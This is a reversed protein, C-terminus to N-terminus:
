PNEGRTWNDYFLAADIGREATVDKFFFHPAESALSQRISCGRLWGDTSLNEETPCAIRFQLTLIIEGPPPPPPLGALGDPARGM